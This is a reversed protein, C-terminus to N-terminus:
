FPVSNFLHLLVPIFGYLQSYNNAVGYIAIIVMLTM